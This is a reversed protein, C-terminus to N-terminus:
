ARAHRHRKGTRRGTAGCSAQLNEQSHNASDEQSQVEEKKEEQADELGCRWHVSDGRVIPRRLAVGVVISSLAPMFGATYLQTM